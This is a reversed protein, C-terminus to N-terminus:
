KVTKWRLGRGTPGKYVFADPDQVLESLADKVSVAILQGKAICGNMEAEKYLQLDEASTNSTLGLVVVKQTRRNEREHKRILKSADAGSMHPLQIDMLVIKYENIRFMKVAEEGSGVVDILKFGARRLALVAIKQSVQVDEVLLLDAKRGKRVDQLRLPLSPQTSTVGLSSPGPAPKRHPGAGGSLLGLGSAAKMEGTKKLGLRPGLGLGLQGNAAGALQAKEKPHFGLGLVGRRPPVPESAGSSFAITKPADEPSPRRKRSAKAEQSDFVKTGSQRILDAKTRAQSAQTEM